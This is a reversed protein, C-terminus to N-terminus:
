CTTRARFVLAGKERRGMGGTSGVQTFSYRCFNHLFSTLSLRLTPAPKFSAGYCLTAVQDDYAATNNAKAIVGNEKNSRSLNALVENKLLEATRM